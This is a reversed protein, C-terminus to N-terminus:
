SRGVIVQFMHTASANANPEHYITKQLFGPIHKTESPDTPPEIGKKSRFFFCYNHILQTPPIVNELIITNAVLFM